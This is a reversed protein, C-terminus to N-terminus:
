SVIFSKYLIYVIFSGIIVGIADFIPVKKYSRVHSFKEIYSYIIIAIAASVSSSLINAIVHDKTHHIVNNELEEEIFIEFFAHIVGFLISSLLIIYGYEM